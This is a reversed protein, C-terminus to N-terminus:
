VNAYKSVIPRSAVNTQSSMSNGTPLMGGGYLRRDADRASMGNGSPMIQHLVSTPTFMHPVANNQRQSDAYLSATTGPTGNM